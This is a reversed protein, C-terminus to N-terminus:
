QNMEAQVAAATVRELGAASALSPGAITATWTPDPQTRAMLAQLAGATQASIAGDALADEILTAMYITSGTDIARRADDIFGPLQKRIKLREAAPVAPIVDADLTPPDPITPAVEVPNEVVTAANLYSAIQEYNDGYQALAAKHQEILERLTM